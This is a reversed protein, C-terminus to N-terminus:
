KGKEQVLIQYSDPKRNLIANTHPVINKNRSLLLCLPSMCSQETNGLCSTLIKGSPSSILSYGGGQPSLSNSCAVFIKNEASRSRGINIQKDDTFRSPWIIIDAGKLTLTRAIEPFLGEYGLMIGLYGYSTKFVPLGLNGPTLLDREDKELHTKRYSGLIKGSELLFTTKYYKQTSKEIVTLACIIKSDQTMQCVRDIIEEGRESFIINNEPFIILEADQEILNNIFFEIKDLYKKFNNEIEMQIIATVPSLNQPFLKEKMISYIPLNETPQVLESYLKPKRGQIMDIKNDVTKNKAERPSIEYFLIEEKHSSAIKAIKGQPTFVASKGCYLISKAEMGVKNAAVIWVRNELARTPMMYEVQPNTLEEEKFGSTVWNTLDILIDAGKLSLSRSIEPLRGDACIFIGVKGFETEVVPYKDGASFWKSDFHWLFSKRSCAIEKGEPSILLASNYLKKESFNNEVIGIAIYCKYKKARKKVQEILKLTSQYFEEPNKVILPSLYYAPYVAEPLVILQPHEEGAKDIMRLINEKIKNRDKYERVKVQLCAIKLKKNM